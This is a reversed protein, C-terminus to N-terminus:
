LVIERNVNKYYIYKAPTPGTAYFSQPCYPGIWLFDDKEVEMWEGDLYYMGKGELMLLGHEMVHTEVYPLGHGPDFTFINMAFDHAFTDPLLTQLRTHTNEAFPTAKAEREHGIIAEPSQQNHIGSTDYRKHLLLLRSDDTATLQWESHQPVYLFGGPGADCNKGDISAHISGSLVYVFEQVSAEGHGVGKGSRVDILYEVFQAGLAPSALVRVEADPWSPLRSTPYGELPFLAYRQRLRARSHVLQHPSRM